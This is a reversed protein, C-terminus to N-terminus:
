AAAAIETKRFAQALGGDVTCEYGELRAVLNGQADLFEVDAVATHAGSRTVRCVVKTGSEPFAAQFQRYRLASSPLSAAGMAEWTWLIMAQFACDLALPDATWADRLPKRYWAEPPASPRADVVIGEPSYAPVAVIGRLDEGHFLYDRYIRNLARPYTGAPFGPRAPQAAPRADGLLIDAAAHLVGGTGRIEARVRFSHNERRPASARLEVSCPAGAPLRVGKFIRFDEFGQFVLGPNGQLAAHSLWEILFAAPVVPVGNLVHSQLFPYEAMTIERSFAPFTEIPVSPVASPSSSGLVVVEVAVSSSSLESVFFSAGEGLGILDVGEKRFIPRLSPTVMGGEWPGWNFSVVKCSPRRSAERVALKNLAENAMAYDAQGKRGLRATTSSFLALVKVPEQGLLELLHRLSSLKTDFVAEMSALPKDAILKDALVGAGHVLGRVPGLKRAEALLKEVSARDRVDCAVYVAKSFESIRALTARSERAALVAQAREKLERPSQAKGGSNDLIARQLQAETELGAFIAAEPELKTRGALVMVTKYAKAMAVATEATVGRAGGTVLVVEGESLPAGSFAGVAEKELELTKAGDPGLGTEVPGGAPLEAALVPAAQRVPWQAPLDFARCDTATWEKAATKALGALAGSLPDAADWAKGSFGFAGDLRSVTRFISPGAALVPAASQALAFARKLFAESEAPTGPKSPAILVLGGIPGTVASVSAPLIQAKYGRDELQRALAPALGKEDGALAITSGKPLLPTSRGELPPASYVKVISREVGRTSPAAVVVPVCVAVSSPVFSPSPNANIFALVQRLTRLTGLHEPKVAPAGPIRESVASLIEVRKISDIGLDSELDMDLGLTEAPYGTKESVIALLIPTADTPLVSSVPVSVAVSSPVSSPLPNANIFALVQRLTRLTGLHEPKVAPAGPIRESVASLIEVRKISDIGLDSELDMDLGLTEAPYGTKESVIGLLIPTADTPLVSSVPVCVAVSSPVSSPSPNANIFALVQRLTRLTGLHEPKVAPAGPIRESVASLIEVRKISDIGLDSELDMDLGLTEAPYGTKESVIGLLVPAADDVVPAAVAFPAAVPRPAAVPAPAQVPVAALAPMVPLPRGSLIGEQQLILRQLNLQAAEQGHLFQAHIVATQEQMRQLASIEEQLARLAGAGTATNRETATLETGMNKKMATQQETEKFVAAARPKAKAARPGRYPAGTIKVSLKAKKIEPAAALGGDWPKLDVGHGLAALRGLTRALDAVGSRKGNSSDLSFAQHDRDGLIQGVLGTLRAGPGVELFTRAGAAHMALTMGVFEVPSALQSSLTERFQDADDSYVAATKNAYVPVRARTLGLGDLAERFPAQAGAVLASHFAASVPLAVCRLGRKSFIESARLTEEKPGSLVGQAPANKNALVLSLGEERLVAEIDALPAQVALMGGRGGDGEGMLRGRLVSLRYLEEPEIRGAACLATLEGYSHGALSEAKVGFDSLVRWAGLGVAGLAPQAARTDRLRVEQASKDEAKFAPHPYILDSLRTEGPFARDALELCDLAQPFQCALDRGMGVYQSGQGPFLVALAGPTGSGFYVGEPLNWERRGTNTKIGSVAAAVLAKIDTKDKEFVLVLRYQETGSFKERTLACARRLEEWSSGAVSAFATLGSALGDITSSSFAAVQVDGSWDIGAKAPTYEELIAHFNSGGFGLASVAARRPHAGRVWPRKETNVYFPSVGPAVPAIPENVKMTPPLVKSSLAMAAKIIGASGAAAKTHGIQSKVSGLACWTGVGKAERYVESLASVEAADGVTTGTGHAEVLEITDPTVGAMDCARRIARTQGEASPAYIAKGRGDSSSGVGKLVAYIRDGDKEADDLRKLVLMGVGEGLATGDATKDFPRSEGSPSLAPTKSFCMFMFIDNFADVGGTVVMKSRRSALELGALNMAGLSSACAADVVCNTGGLNFRNAIRGAVVNGLLGPFSNEQWGVYEDSIREVVAEAREGEIGCEKLARRWIPHGLRAGLPIALELTGTVGLIVSVRARDFEREPGYGADKLAERAALLGLLQASDTAELTNPALGFESPDFDVPSLFGGRRAYTFDPKKPDKDFYDEARWHTAPVDGIGDVKGKINAWYERLSSAKPFLCGMGIIAIPTSLEKENPSM